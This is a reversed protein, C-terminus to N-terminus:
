FPNWTPAPTFKLYGLNVGLRWGVGSRIPVVVIGDAGLATMGVGAVMYASGDIGVFRRFLGKVRPLNYILIMTQAGEGGFDFGVSPGQWYVPIERYPTYLTGAGYRVGAVWAGSGEQGIIYANPKGWRKTAEELIGAFGRSVNGFFKQGRKFVERPEFTDKPSLTDQHKLTRQSAPSTKHPSSSQQSLAPFLFGTVLILFVALTRGFWRLRCSTKLFPRPKM